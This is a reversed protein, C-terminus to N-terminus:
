SSVNDLEKLLRVKSIYNKCFGDSEVIGIDQPQYRVWEILGKIVEDIAYEIKNEFAKEDYTYQKLDTERLYQKISKKAM